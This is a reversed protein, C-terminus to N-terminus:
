PFLCALTWGAGPRMTPRHDSLAAGRHNQEHEEPGYLQRIPTATSVPDLPRSRQDASGLELQRYRRQMPRTPIM